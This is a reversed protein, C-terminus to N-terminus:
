SSRTLQQQSSGSARAVLLIAGAFLLTDFVYNLGELKGEAPNRVFIPTYLFITIALVVAGLIAAATRANRDILMLLGTIILVAGVLYGWDNHLPFWDPTIKGLPVGPAFNPHLIHLVGFVMCVAGMAIRGFTKLSATGFTGALSFAGAAFSFDRLAVALVIRDGHSKITNPLHLMLVFLVFMVGLLTSSLRVSREFVLSLAAAILAVAVFYLWFPPLPMFKPVGNVIFAAETFHEVGFTALASATFTPGLAVLKELGSASAVRNRTTWLGIALAILGAVLPWLVDHPM